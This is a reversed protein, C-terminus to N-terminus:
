NLKKGTSLKSMSMQKKLQYQNDIKKVDKKETAM